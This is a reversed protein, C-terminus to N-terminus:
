FLFRNELTFRNLYNRFYDVKVYAPENLKWKGREAIEHWMCYMSCIVSLHLSKWFFIYSRVFNLCKAVLIKGQLEVGSILFFGWWYERKEGVYIYWKYNSIHNKYKLSNFFLSFFFLLFVVVTFKLSMIFLRNQKTDSKEKENFFYM